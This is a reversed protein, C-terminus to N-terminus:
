DLRALWALGLNDMQREIWAQRKRTWADPAAIRHRQPNPLVSAMLAAQRADLRAADRGLYRTAAAGVGYVGPGYEAINLHLELIRRKSLLAELWVTWWAELGKRLLSRGSWLYLNKVVQQSLTSAGRLHAGDRHAALADAVADFDFGHHDPFKQDEGAIVALALWPSIDAFPRPRYDLEFGADGARWAEIRAALMFATFPPDAFRLPLIALPGSALLM